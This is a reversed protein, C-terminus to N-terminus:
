KANKTPLKPEDLGIVSNLIKVARGLAIQRGLKYSFTDQVACESYAECIVRGESNMIQAKTMGGCTAPSDGWPSKGEGLFGRKRFYRSYIGRPEQPDHRYHSIKVAWGGERLIEVILKLEM